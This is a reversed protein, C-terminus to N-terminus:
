ENELAEALVRRLCGLSSLRGGLRRGARRLLGVESRDVDSDTEGTGTSTEVAVVRTSGGDVGLVARLSEVALSPDVELNSTDLSQAVVGLLEAELEIVLLGNTTKGNSTLRGSCTGNDSKWHALKIM